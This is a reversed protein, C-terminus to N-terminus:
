RQWLQPGDKWGRRSGPRVTPVAPQLAAAALRPLRRPCGRGSRTPSDLERLGLLRLHFDGGQEPQPHHGVTLYAKRNRGGELVPRGVGFPQGPEGAQGLLRRLRGGSVERAGRVHRPSDRRHDAQRSKLNDPQYSSPGISPNGPSLCPPSYRRFAGPTFSCIGCSTIPVM